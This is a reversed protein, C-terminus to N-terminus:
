KAVCTSSASEPLPSTVDNSAACVLVAALMASMCTVHALEVVVVVPVDDEEVVPVPVPVDDDDDEEEVVPPLLM